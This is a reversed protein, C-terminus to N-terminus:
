RSDSKKPFKSRFEAVADRKAARRLSSPKMQKDLMKLTANLGRRASKAEVTKDEEFYIGEKNSSKWVGKTILNGEKDYELYPGNRQGCKYTEHIRLRGNEYYEEYPGDLCRDLYFTCSTNKKENPGIVLTGKKALQGNEYYEEFPGLNFGREDVTYVKRITKHDSHYMILTRM